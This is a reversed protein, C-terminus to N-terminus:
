TVRISQLEHSWKPPRAPSVMPHLKYFRGMWGSRLHGQRDSDGPKKGDFDSTDIKKQCGWLLDFFYFWYFGVFITTFSTEFDKQLICPSVICPLEPYGCPFDFESGHGCPQGSGSGRQLIQPEGAPFCLALSEAGAEVSGGQLKAKPPVQVFSGRPTWEQHGCVANISIQPCTSRESINM